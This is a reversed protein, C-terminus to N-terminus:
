AFLINFLLKRWTVSLNSLWKKRFVFDFTAVYIYFQKVVFRIITMNWSLNNIPTNSIVHFLWWLRMSGQSCIMLWPINLSETLTPLGWKHPLVCPGRYFQEHEKGYRCITIAVAFAFLAAASDFHYQFKPFKVSFLHQQKRQWSLICKRYIVSRRRLWYSIVNCM